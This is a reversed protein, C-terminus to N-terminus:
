ICLCAYMCVFKFVFRKNFTTESINTSLLRNKYVLLIESFFYSEVSYSFAWEFKRSTQM